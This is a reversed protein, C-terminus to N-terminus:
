FGYLQRVENGIDAMSGGRTPPPARPKWQDANDLWKRLAADWDKSVRGKDAAHDTFKSLESELMGEPWKAVLAQTRATFPKPQWGEPLKTGRAQTPLTIVQNLPEEKGRQQGATAGSEPEVNGWDREQPDQYKAYNCITLVAQGQGAVHGSRAGNKSCTEIMGEERLDAIFRDVRSKSWGWADAMFRQSFSLQGRELTVIQGKIRARTPKWAANAVLWFWARFREADRLLPHDLADRQMAIFGSM